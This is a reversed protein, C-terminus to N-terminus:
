RNQVFLPSQKSYLSVCVQITGTTLRYKSSTTTRTLALGGRYGTTCPYKRFYFLHKLYKCFKEKESTRLNFWMRIERFIGVNMHTQIIFYLQLSILIYNVFYNYLFHEGEYDKIFYRNLIWIKVFSNGMYINNIQVM